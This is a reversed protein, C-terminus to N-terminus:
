PNRRTTLLIRSTATTDGLMEAAYYLARLVTSDFLYARLDQDMLQDKAESVPVFIPVDSTYTHRVRNPLRSTRRRGRRLREEHVIDEKPKNAITNEEMSREKRM